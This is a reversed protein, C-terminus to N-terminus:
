LRVVGVRIQFPYYTSLQVHWQRLRAIVSIQRESFSLAQRTRAGIDRESMRSLRHLGVEM